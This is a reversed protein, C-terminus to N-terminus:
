EQKGVIRNMREAIADIDGKRTRVALTEHTNGVDSRRGSTGTAELSAQEKPTLQEIAETAGEKRAEEVAKSPNKLLDGAEKLSLQKGGYDGPNLMSDLIVRRAAVHLEKDFTAANPNLEPHVNYADRAELEARLAKVEEATSTAAKNAEITQNQVENLKNWDFQDTNPDYIPEEKPAEDKPKLTSFAQELAERRTREEALDSRLKDFQDKTRDSATEPLGDVKTDPIQEATPMAADQQVEPVDKAQQTNDM